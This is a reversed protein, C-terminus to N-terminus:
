NGSIIGALMLVLMSDERFQKIVCPEEETGDSIYDLGTENRGLLYHLQNEVM